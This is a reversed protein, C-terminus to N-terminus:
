CNKRLASHTREIEVEARAACAENLLRCITLLYSYTTRYPDMQLESREPQVFLSNPSIQPTARAQYPFKLTPSSGTQTRIGGYKFGKPYSDPCDWKSANKDTSNFNNGSSVTSFQAILHNLHNEFTKSLNFGLERTNEVLEEDIYLVLNHKQRM